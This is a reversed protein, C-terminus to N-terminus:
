DQLLLQVVQVLDLIMFYQIVDLLNQRNFLGEILTQTHGVEGHPDLSNGDISRWKLFRETDATLSGVRADSGDAIVLAINYFFLKTIHEKYTELQNFAKLYNVYFFRYNLKGTKYTLARKNKHKSLM